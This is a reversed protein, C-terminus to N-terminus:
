RLLFGDKLPDAAESTFVARGTYYAHGAVEARIAPFRGTKLHAAVRGDFVAGTVSEFQRWEGEAIEQRAAMLALRATVGSGTPSRDVEEAAFVCINASPTHRGDGGDTLITGYLFALDADDPHDLPVQAKVAETIASAAAMLDRTRAGRVDLGFSAAPLIAYFAGGYGIDLTVSGHGPVEITQDLAFAFAPVSVFSVRGRYPGDAIVTVEVLGCPCQLNLKARGDPGPTILGQDLAYRGLAITAHGCMTSYGENHIFLVAMDAEPHDPEVPLVGYMDYHGRPEFMLRRRYQDLHDRAHRRKELITRGPIAPYGATVIRVPEGGTHMEVTHIEIATGTDATQAPLQASGVAAKMELSVGM